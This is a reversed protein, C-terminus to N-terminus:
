TRTKKILLYMALITLLKLVISFKTLLFLGHQILLHEKLYCAVQEHVIGHSLYHVVSRQNLNLGYLFFKAFSPLESSTHFILSSSHTSTNFLWFSIMWYTLSVSAISDPLCVKSSENSLVEISYEFFCFEHKFLFKFSLTNDNSIFLM